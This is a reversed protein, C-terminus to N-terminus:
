CILYHLGFACCPLVQQFLKLGSDLTLSLSRKAPVPLQPLQAPVSVWRSVSPPAPSLSCCSERHGSPHWAPIPWNSRVQSLDTHGSSHKCWWNRGAPAPHSGASPCQCRETGQLGWPLCSFLSLLGLLLQLGVQGREACLPVLFVWRQSM